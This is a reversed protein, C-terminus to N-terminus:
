LALPDDELPTINIINSEAYVEDLKDRIENTVGTAASTEDIIKRTEIFDGEMRALLELCRLRQSPSLNEVAIQDTPQGTDDNFIVKPLIGGAAGMTLIAKRQARDLVFYRAGDTKCLEDLYDLGDPDSLARYAQQMKMGVLTAAEKTDGCYSLTTLFRERHKIERKKKREIGGETTPEPDKSM